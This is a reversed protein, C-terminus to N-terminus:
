FLLLRVKTLREQRPTNVLYVSDNVILKFDDEMLAEITNSSAIRVGDTLLKCQRCYIPGVNHKSSENQSQKWKLVVSSFRVSVLKDESVATCFLTM